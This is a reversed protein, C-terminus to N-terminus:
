EGHLENEKAWDVYYKLAPYQLPFFSEPHLELLNRLTNIEIWQPDKAEGTQMTVEGEVECLFVFGIWPLWDRTSLAQQCIFPQFAMSRDGPRPEHIEGSFSNKFKLITLWCEEHVERTIADFVNEYPEICGAPIELMGSYAPSKQPKWRTQVFIKRQGDEVKELIASVIAIPHLNSPSSM